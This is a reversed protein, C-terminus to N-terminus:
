LYHTNYNQVDLVESVDTKTEKIIVFFCTLGCEGPGSSKFNIHNKEKKTIAVYNWAYLPHLTKFFILTRSKDTRRPWETKEDGGCLGIVESKSSNRYWNKDM